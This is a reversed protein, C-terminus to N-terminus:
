LDEHENQLIMNLKRERMKNIFEEYTLKVGNDFDTIEKVNSSLEWTQREMEGLRIKLYNMISNRSDWVLNEYWVDNGCPCDWIVPNGNMELYSICDDNSEIYKKPYKNQLQKLRDYEGDEFDGISNEPSCFHVRGCMCEQQTYSGGGLFAEKFKESVM